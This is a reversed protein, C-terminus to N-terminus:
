SMFTVMAMDPRLRVAPGHQRRQHADVWSFRLERCERLGPFGDAKSVLVSTEIMSTSAVNLPFRTGAPFSPFPTDGAPEYWVYRLSVLKDATVCEFAPETLSDGKSSPNSIRVAVVDFRREQFSAKVVRGDIDAATVKSLIDLSTNGSAILVGIFGCAAVVGAAVRKWARVNVSKHPAEVVTTMREKRAQGVSNTRKGM